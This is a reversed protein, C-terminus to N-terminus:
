RVPAPPPERRRYVATYYYTRGNWVFSYNRGVAWADVENGLNRSSVGLLTVTPMAERAWTVGGDTTAWLFGLPSNIDAPNPAEGVIWGRSGNVFNVGTLTPNRDALRQTTWSRGGDVTRAALGAAGVAWGKQTDAFYVSRFAYEVSTADNWNYVSWTGGNPNAADATSVIANGGVAFVHNADVARVSFLNTGFGIPMVKPSWGAGGNRSYWILRNSNMDSAAAWVNNADLMHVANLRIMESHILAQWSAGADTTKLGIVWRNPGMACPASTVAIGTNGVFSVSTFEGLACIDPPSVSRGPHVQVWGRANDNSEGRQTNRYIVGSGRSGVAVGVTADVFHVSKFLTGQLQADLTWWIVPQPIAAPAVAGADAAARAPAGADGAARAPAGADAAARAPAGADFPVRAPAGADPAARAPVAAGAAGSASGGGAVLLAFLSLLLSGAVPYRM